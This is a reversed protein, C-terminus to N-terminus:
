RYLVDRVALLYTRGFRQSPELVTGEAWENWANLFLVRHDRDRDAIASIASNLWRRFTYPNSGYWLDPQWQRRATNDFNVMVGPYRGSELPERLQAESDRAMSAYSLINGQFRPDVALTERSQLKWARNHPAFELYADLGHDRLDGEIGDMSRGVDVTVITLGPLGAAIAATRWYELVDAYDPIQTIRYVSIVPKDDIRIYRSDTLHHIVDHIFQTAPVEDYDQAILVNESSGDWRRTWNENAWMICFPTDGESAILNAIPMDMLKKGAFWYYYYMFGEIGAGTALEYQKRSVSPNSLDYFGLDAPLFPQNHGLFVPKGASVNAWETFGTGWWADNEPFAHFQPLYFPIVRARPIYKHDGSYRTWSASMETSLNGNEGLAYGSELTLIGIIREIAHATTGDIQGTEADFDEADLSLARLGQLIFGRV